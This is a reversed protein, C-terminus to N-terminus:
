QLTQECTAVRNTTSDINGDMTGQAAVQAKLYFIEEM